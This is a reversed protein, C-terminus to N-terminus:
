PTGAATSLEAAPASRGARPARIVRLVTGPAFLSVPHRLMSTVLLFRHTLVPDAAAAAQLRHVYRNMARFPLPRPGDIQPLALDGGVALQWAVDVRRAAARFYRRALDHRGAALCRRLEMAELAAVSMGQAYLPNFSCMADGIVLLGEPFSRLREYRRRLNSPFRHARPAGLPEAQRLVRRVHPPAVADAFARYGADDSPPHNEAGYGFLMLRWRDGEHALLVMGTPRDPEAGRVVVSEGGPVGTPLRLDRTVYLLDVPLEEVPPTPYGLDDLWVPTRGSRGTADVVLDAPITEGTSGPQRPVVRVGVVRSASADTALGAVDTGDRLVVGPLALVRERLQAELFPRSPQYGPVSVKAEQHLLHGGVRFHVERMSRVVPVGQSELGDLFGPFLEDLIESGSSLLFHAQRGQPVGRRASRDGGADRLGDREVITVRDYAESLVRAALLGAMSAGLVVAHGDGTAPTKPTRGM